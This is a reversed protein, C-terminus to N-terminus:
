EIKSVKWRDASLKDTDPEFNSFVVIHPPNFMKTGTEYKCNTILGDLICEISAYSVKNGNVRPVDIIVAGHQDMDANFIINMIDNLKGGRIILTGHKKAMYKCFSSKGKGGMDDWYWNISRGDPETDVLIKKIAAQWPKLTSIIKLPKPFGWITVLGDKQCYEISAEENRMKEWHIRNSLGLSTPRAKENFWISGQLHKTGLVGVEEGYVFKRCHEKFVPDIITHFDDPYNNYTFCWKISPSVQKKSPSSINTNGNEGSSSSSNKSM